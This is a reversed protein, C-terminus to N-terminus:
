NPPRSAAKRGMAAMALSFAPLAATVPTAPAGPAPRKVRSWQRSTSVTMPPLSAWQRVLPPRLTTPRRNTSSAPATSIKPSRTSNRPLATGDSNRRNIHTRAPDAGSALSSKSCQGGEDLLGTVGKEGHEAMSAADGAPGSLAGALDGATSDVQGIAGKLDSSIRDFSTAAESSDAPASFMGSVAKETDQMGVRPEEASDDFLFFYRIGDFSTAAESLAQADTTLEAM